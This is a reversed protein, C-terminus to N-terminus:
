LSTVCSKSSVQQVHAKSDGPISVQNPIGRINYSSGGPISRPTGGSGGVQNPVDGPVVPNQFERECDEREGGSEYATDDGRKEGDACGESDEDCAHEPHGDGEGCCEAKGGHECACAICEPCGDEDGTFDESEIAKGCEEDDARYGVDAVAPLRNVFM